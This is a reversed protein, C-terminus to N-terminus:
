AEILLEVTSRLSTTLTKHAFLLELLVLVPVKRDLSFLVILLEHLRTSFRKITGEEGSQRRKDIVFIVRAEHIFLFDGIIKDFRGRGFLIIAIQTLLRKFDCVALGLFGPHNFLSHLNFHFALLYLGFHM